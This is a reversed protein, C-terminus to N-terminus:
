ADDEEEEEGDEEAISDPEDHEGDDDSEKGEDEIAEDSQKKTLAKFMKWRDTSEDKDDEEDFAPHEASAPRKCAVAVQTPLRGPFDM